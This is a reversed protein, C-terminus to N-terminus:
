AGYDKSEELFFNREHIGKLASEGEETLEPKGSPDTSVTFFRPKWVEDREKRRAAKQRQREELDHKLKTAQSYQKAHIAASVESWFQRSENPLQIDQPPVNKQAPYLPVLDILLQRETSGTLTYYVRGHWSGDIKALIDKEPVDKVKSKNDNDPDYRFIVGTVKHQAKSLWGEELYQLIAKIRTRPCTITCADSVSVSLGGKLFGNVHAAPHTLQYEEDDRRRLRVFIGLNHQGPSIRVSTGTFKVSIQDYGRAVIGRDPCDIFFASVPPHHSTQETLFAIKLEEGEEDSTVSSSGAPTPATSQPTIPPESDRAEWNCQTSIHDAM